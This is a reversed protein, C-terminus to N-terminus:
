FRRSGSNQSSGQNSPPAGYNGYTSLGGSNQSQGYGMNSRDPRYESYTPQNQGPTYYSGSQQPQQYYMYRRGQQQMMRPQAQQKPRYINDGPTKIAGGYNVSPLSPNGNPEIGQATKSLTGAGIYTSSPTSLGNQSQRTVRSNGYGYHYQAFAPISSAGMLLILSLATAKM